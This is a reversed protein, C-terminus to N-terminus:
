KEVREVAQSKSHRSISTYVHENAEVVEFGYISSSLYSVCLQFATLDFPIQLVYYFHSNKEM